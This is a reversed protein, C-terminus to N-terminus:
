AIFRSNSMEKKGPSNCNEPTTVRFCNRLLISFNMQRDRLSNLFSNARPATVIKFTLGVVQAQDGVFGENLTCIVSRVVM